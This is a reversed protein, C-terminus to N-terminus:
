SLLIIVARATLIAVFLYVWWRRNYPKIKMVGPEIKKLEDVATKRAAEAGSLLVVYFILAVLSLFKGPALIALVFCSVLLAPSYKLINRYKNTDNESIMVPPFNNIPESRINAKLPVEPTKYTNNNSSKKATPKEGPKFFILKVGPSYDRTEVYAKEKVNYDDDIEEDIVVKKYTGPFVEARVSIGPEKLLNRVRATRGQKIHGVKVGNLEVRIANADYENEPEDVLSVELYEPFEYKFIQDGDEFYELIESKRMNFDPNLEALSLLNKQYYQTGAVKFTEPGKFPVARRKGTEQKEERDVPMEAGCEACFRANDPMEAGCKPCKRM